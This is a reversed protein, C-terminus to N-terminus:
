TRPPPTPAIHPIPHNAREGRGARRRRRRARAAAAAPPLAAARGGPVRLGRLEARRPQRPQVVPGACLRRPTTRGSRAARAAGDRGRRAPQRRCSRDGFPPPDPRHFRPREADHLRPLSGPPVRLRPAGRPADARAGAPRQWRGAGRRDSAPAAAPGAALQAATCSGRQSLHPLPRASPPPPAVGPAGGPPPFTGGDRGFGLRQILKGQPAVVEVLQSNQPCRRGLSLSGGAPAQMSRASRRRGARQRLTPPSLRLASPPLSSSAALRNALRAAGVTKGGLGKGREPRSRSAKAFPLCLAGGHVHIEVRSARALLPADAILLFALPVIQKKHSPPPGM